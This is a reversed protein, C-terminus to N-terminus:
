DVRKREWQGKGLAVERIFTTFALFGLSSTNSISSWFDHEAM